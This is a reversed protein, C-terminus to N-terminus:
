FPTANSYKSWIRRLFEDLDGPRENGWNAIAYTAVEDELDYFLRAMKMGMINCMTKQTYLLLPNKEVLNLCFKKVEVALDAIRLNEHHCGM